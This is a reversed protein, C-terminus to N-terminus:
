SEQEQKPGTQSLHKVIDVWDWGRPREGKGDAKNWQRRKQAKTLHEKKPKKTTEELQQNEDTIKLQNTQLNLDVVSDPQASILETYHEQVYQFLTYTMASGLWQNAEAELHQLVKDKVEQVIHKNYFTNMNITPRESPYTTGWSIELLFSKMDNDEGYKYQFTTPTLQKFALDGEYISLLVEREEEQLEADGM